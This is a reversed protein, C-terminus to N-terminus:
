SDRGRERGHRHWSDNRPQYGPGPCERYLVLLIGTVLVSMMITRVIKM